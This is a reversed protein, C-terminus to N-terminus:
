LWEEPYESGDKAAYEAAPFYADWPDDDHEEGDRPASPCDEYLDHGGCLPCEGAEHGHALEWSDGDDDTMASVMEAAMGVVPSVAGSAAAAAAAGGLTLCGNADNGPQRGVMNPALSPPSGPAPAVGLTVPSDTTARLAVSNGKGQEVDNGGCVAGSASPTAM